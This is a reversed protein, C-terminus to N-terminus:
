EEPEWLVTAPLAIHGVKGSLSDFTFRYDGMADRECVVSASDRIVTLPKARDLEARNTIVRPAPVLRTVLTVEENDEALFWGDANFTCWPVADDHDKVANRREGRCEVIWAEGPKVDAPDTTEANSEAGKQVTLFQERFEQFNDTRRLKENVAALREVEARAEDRERALIGAQENIAQNWERQEQNEQEIQEARDATDHLATREMENDAVEAWARIEEALTPAPAEVTALIVRAVNYIESPTGIYGPSTYPPGVKEAWLRANRLDGDTVANDTM